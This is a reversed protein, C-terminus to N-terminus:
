YDRPMALSVHEAHVLVFLFHGRKHFPPRPPVWGWHGSLKRSQRAQLHSILSSQRPLGVIGATTLFSM